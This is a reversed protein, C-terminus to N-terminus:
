QPHVQGLTLEAWITDGDFAFGISAPLDGGDRCSPHAYGRPMYCITIEDGVLDARRDRDRLDLVDIVTGDRQMLVVSDTAPSVEMLVLDGDEVAAIRGQAAIMIFADRAQQMNRGQLYSSMPPIALATVVAGIILVIVLEIMTFGPRLRAGLDRIVGTQVDM